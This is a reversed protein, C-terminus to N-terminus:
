EREGGPHQASGAARDRHTALEHLDDWTRAGSPTWHRCLRGIWCRNKNCTCAPLACTGYHDLLYDALDRQDRDTM